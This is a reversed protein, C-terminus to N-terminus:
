EYKDEMEETDYFWNTLGLGMIAAETRHKSAYRGVFKVDGNAVIQYLYYRKLRKHKKKM